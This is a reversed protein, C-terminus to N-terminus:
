NVGGLLKEAERAEMSMPYSALLQELLAAAQAAHGLAQEALAAKRLYMPATLNNDSAKVAKNYFKVAKAYDQQEVAVDGQLGFNQANIIAGPIGSVPSFKALYAAANELDGTRLYCIGAYHKALNGSPTGGFQEIVELFGAGNADGLLSLEYDPTESEFRSQAQAIMAAAKEARPAVIMARYGYILAALLFLALIVYSMTRGNRELFLETKNMAQGLSEQGAAQQNAM